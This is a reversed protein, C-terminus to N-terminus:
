AVCAHVCACVCVVCHVAACALAAPRVEAINEGMRKELCFGCWTGRKPGGEMRGRFTSCVCYTKADITKQRRGRTPPGQTEPRRAQVGLVAGPPRGMGCGGWAVGRAVAM